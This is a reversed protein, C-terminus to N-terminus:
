QNQRIVNGIFSLSARMFTAANSYQSRNRSLQGMQIDIDVNNGDPKTSGSLDHVFRAVGGEGIDMHKSNTTTIPSSQKSFARDLEGAFDVDAARYGPTEANAINSAIADQRKATLEMTKHLGDIRSGFLGDLFIKM